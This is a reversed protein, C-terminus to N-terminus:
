AAAWLTEMRRAAHLMCCVVRRGRFRTSEAIRTFYICCVIYLSCCLVQTLRTRLDNEDSWRGAGLRVSARTRVFVCVRVCACACGGTYARVSGLPGRAAGPAAHGVRRLRSTVVRVCSAPRPHIRPLPAREAHPAAPLASRDCDGTGTRHPEVSRRPPRSSALSRTPPLQGDYDPLLRRVLASFIKAAATALDADCEKPTKAVAFMIAM